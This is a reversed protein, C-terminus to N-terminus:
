RPPVAAKAAGTMALASDIELRVDAQNEVLARARLLDRAAAGGIRGLAWAAHARVLPEPHALGHAAGPLAETSGWNGLAVMVNRLLGRWGARRVPTGRFRHQFEERELSALDLLLPGPAPSRPLYAPDAEPGSGSNWPCVEQCDDCGFIRSGVQPRMEAPMAGKLEITLYSICRRADVVGPSVIAGTPCAPLCAVCDGCEEAARPTPEWDADTAIGGLFFWSGMGRRLLNGNKGIWGLGGAAALAKEMLPSTDVFPLALRGHRAFLAALADLKARLVGHYDSGRAYRSIVGRSPDPPPDAAGPYPDAFVAVSRAWAAWARPDARAGGMRAMYAMEGHMGQALWATLAGASGAAPGARAVSPGALGQARAGDRVLDLLRADAHPGSSM